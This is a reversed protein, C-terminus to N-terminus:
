SVLQFDAAQEKRIFTVVTLDNGEPGTCGFIAPGESCFVKQDIFIVSSWDRNNWHAYQYAFGIRDIM